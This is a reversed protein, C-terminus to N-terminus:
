ASVVDADKFLFGTEHVVRIGEPEGTVPNKVPEFGMAAVDGIKASSNKGRINFQFPVFHPGSLKSVLAAIIEFPM